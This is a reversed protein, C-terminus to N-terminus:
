LIQGISPVWPYQSTLTRLRAVNVTVRGLGTYHDDGLVRSVWMQQQANPLQATVVQKLLKSRDRGPISDQDKAHSGFARGSLWQSPCSCRSVNMIFSLFLSCAWMGWAGVNSSFATYLTHCNWANTVPLWVSFWIWRLQVFYNQRFNLLYIFQEKFFYWILMEQLFAYWCIINKM